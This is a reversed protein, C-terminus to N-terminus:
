ASENELDKYFLKMDFGLVNAIKYAVLGSPNRYGLEINSMQKNTIGCRNALQIQNLGKEVRKRILWDRKKNM